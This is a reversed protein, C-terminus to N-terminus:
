PSKKLPVSSLTQQIKQKVDPPTFDTLMKSVESVFPLLKSHQAFDPKPGYATVIMLVLATLIIGKGLGFALGFLNNAWQVMALKILGTLGLVLIRVALIVAVVILIYAALGTYEQSSMFNILHPALKAHYLNAFYIAAFIGCLSAAEMILGRSYGRTAFFCWAILILLDAINM